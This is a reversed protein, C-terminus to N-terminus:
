ENIEKPLKLYFLLHLLLFTLNPILLLILEDFWAAKVVVLISLITYAVPGGFYRVLKSAKDTLYTQIDISLVPLAALFLFLHQFIEAVAFIM